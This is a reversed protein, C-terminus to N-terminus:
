VCSPFKVVVKKYLQGESNVYEIPINLLQALDTEQQVGKSSRWGELCVIYMADAKRLFATNYDQWYKADSPLDFLIAINHCHLIPSFVPLQKHMLKGMVKRVALYRQRQLDEDPDSYPSAVYIM